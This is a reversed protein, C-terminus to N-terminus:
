NRFDCDGYRAGCATGVEMITRVLAAVFLTSESCLDGCPVVMTGDGAFFRRRSPASDELFRCRPFGPSSHWNFRSTNNRTRLLNKRRKRDSASPGPITISQQMYEGKPDGSGQVCTCIEELVKSPCTTPTRRSSWEHGLVHGEQNDLQSSQVQIRM